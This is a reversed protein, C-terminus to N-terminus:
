ALDSVSLEAMAARLKGAVESLAQPLVQTQGIVPMFNYDGKWRPVIHIHLHDAIGAGAAEGLNIGINYGHPALEKQMARRCLGVMRWLESFEDPSLEDIDAVERYPLVMVHGGSYPYNNLLVFGCKGRYIVLNAEDDASRAIESFVGCGPSRKPKNLIYEIRWPAHLSEMALSKEWKGNM